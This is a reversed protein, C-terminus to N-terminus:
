ISRACHLGYLLDITTGKSKLPMKTEQLVTLAQEIAAAAEKLPGKLAAALIKSSHAHATGVDITGENTTTPIDLVNSM